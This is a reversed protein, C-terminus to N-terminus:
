PKIKKNYYKTKMITYKLVKNKKNAKIGKKM